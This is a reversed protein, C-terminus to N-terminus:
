SAAPSGSSSTGTAPKTDAQNIAQVLTNFSSAVTGPTPKMLAEGMGVMAVAISIAKQVDSTVQLAHTADHTASQLDAVAGDIEVLGTQLAMNELQEGCSVLQGFEVTLREKQLPTLTNRNQIRFNLVADATHDFLAALNKLDFPTWEM